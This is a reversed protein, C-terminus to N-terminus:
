RKGSPKFEKGDLLTKSGLSESYRTKWGEPTKVWTDRATNSVVIKRPRGQPDPVVATGQDKYHVIAQDGKVTLKLIKYSYATFQMMAMPGSDMIEAVEERTAKKGGAQKMVYDETTTELFFRKLAYKHEGRLLRGYQGYIKELERRVSKEDGYVPPATSVVALAWVLAVRLLPRNSRQIMPGRKLIEAAPDAPLAAAPAGGAQPTQRTPAGRRVRITPM